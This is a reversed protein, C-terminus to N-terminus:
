PLGVELQRGLAEGAPVGSAADAAAAGCNALLNRWAGPHLRDVCAQVAATGSVNRGQMFEECRGSEIGEFSTCAAVYERRCRNILDAYRWLYYACRIGEFLYQPSGRPAVLEVTAASGRSVASAARTAEVELSDAAHTARRRRSGVSTQQIVHTLEHALLRIGEETSLPDATSAFVIDRGVTYAAAGIERATQRAPPDSRVRVDAFSHGMKSGLLSLTSQLSADKAIARTTRLLNSAM